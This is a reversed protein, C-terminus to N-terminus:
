KLKGFKYCTFSDIGHIDNTHKFARYRCGGRCQELFECNLENCRLSNLPWNLKEQIFKWSKKVGLDLVNGVNDEYFFGCKTVMGLVDIAMLNPGCALNSAESEYIVGWGYDRLINGGEEFSIEYKKRIEKSISEDFTPIDISWNKIKGLSNILQLMEDFETINQKHVMTNISTTIDSELLLKIGDLSDQFCNADRFDNHTSKLGDISVYIDFYNQKLLDLLEPKEKILTANTLMLKQIPIDLLYTLLEKLNPYLYPEGGTLIVKIGQLKYFENIIDKVKELPFDLLNKNTIYCHKCTLNCKETLNIMLNKLYPTSVPNESPLNDHLKMIYANDNIEHTLFDILGLEQFNDVIDSVEERKEIPFSEIIQKLPKKGNLLKLLAYAEDDIIYSEDNQFDYINIDSYRRFSVHKCIFPFSNHNMSLLLILSM